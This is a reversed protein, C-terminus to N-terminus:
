FLGKFLYDHEEKYHNFMEQYTEFNDVVCHLECELYYFIVLNILLSSMVVFVFFLVQRLTELFVNTKM